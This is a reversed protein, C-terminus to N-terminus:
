ITEYCVGLIDASRPAAIDHDHAVSAARHQEFANDGQRPIGHCKFIATQHEVALRDVFRVDFTRGVPIQGFPGDFPIMKIQRAVVPGYRHFRMNEAFHM